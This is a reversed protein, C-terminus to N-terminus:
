AESEVGAMLALLAFSALWHEGMYDGAVHPLSASIHVRAADEAVARVPDAPDLHAAVERWCWARSFNVGDLHAMKGDTRDPSSAPEFLSAPDREAARPLYAAFWARFKGVDLAAAMLAATMLTPSLFDDLSPEWAQADRDGSHWLAARHIIEEVLGADAYAAAYDLTLRLAFATSSHV